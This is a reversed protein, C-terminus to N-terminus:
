ANRDHLFFAAGNFGYSFFPSSTYQNQQELFEQFARREGYNPSAKNCNWDDFMLVCGDQFVKYEHLAWLVEVTSQYLDCDIHVIAAKVNLPKKLSDSYFGRYVHIRDPSIIEGLRDRVHVDITSGLDKQFNDSFRMKDSWINRGAIEYSKVDIDSTYDPLGDFSDFLHIDAPNMLSRISECFIRSSWGALVGFELVDGTVGAISVYELCRLVAERHVTEARKPDYFVFCHKTLDRRGEDAIIKELRTNADRNDPDLELARVLLRKAAAADGGAVKRAETAYVTSLVQMEARTPGYKHILGLARRYHAFAEDYKGADQATKGLMHHHQADMSADIPIAVPQPKIAASPVAAAPPPSAAISSAPAAPAPPQVSKMGYGPGFARRLLRLKLERALARGPITQLSPAATTAPAPPTTSINRGAGAAEPVDNGTALQDSLAAHATALELPLQFPHSSRKRLVVNILYSAVQGSAASGSALPTEASRVDAQLASLDSIGTLSYWCDLLEYDNTNALDKFLARHYCFYGHDIWGISPLQHVAIGGVALADHAVKFCNYQNIIHETTGFNLVIDFREHYHPPVSQRNLDFIETKLAPCVDYSTYSLHTIDLLESLYTTREGPRPYSFYSLREIEKAVAADDPSRGHKAVFERLAETTASLLCQSGIDMIRTGPKDLYGKQSLYGLYPMGFGM